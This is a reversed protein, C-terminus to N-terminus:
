ATKLTRTLATLHQSKDYPTTFVNGGAAVHTYHMLDAVSVWKDLNYREQLGSLIDPDAAHYFEKRFASYEKPISNVRRKELAHDVNAEIFFDVARTITQGAQLVAKEFARLM